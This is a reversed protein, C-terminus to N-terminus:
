CEFFYQLFQNHLSFYNINLHFIIKKSVFLNLLLNFVKDDNNLTM